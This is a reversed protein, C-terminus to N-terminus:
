GRERVKGLADWIALDVASVAHRVLSRTGLHLTARHMRDWILRVERISSGLAFQALFHEVIWAAPPGAISVFGQGVVGGATEVEVTV